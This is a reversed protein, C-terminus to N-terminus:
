YHLLLGVIGAALLIFVPNWKPRLIVIIPAALAILWDAVGTAAGRVISFATWFLIGVVALGIMRMTGIVRPNRAVRRHLSSLPLVLLSPIVNAVAAVGAGPVGYVLYGLAIVYLGNPGPSIRGVALAQGFQADTAWGHNHVLSQVLIPLSGLGGFSLLGAKLFEWFLTFINM